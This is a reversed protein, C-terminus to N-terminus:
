DARTRRLLPEAAALSRDAIRLVRGAAGPTTNDILNGMVQLTINAIGQTGVSLRLGSRLIWPHGILFSFRRGTRLFADFRAGVERDYRAPATAPDDVFLDAALIGSELGYDIGEGNMPNVLGAADGIAVWGAGHRRQTSMPLRWARPKEVYDGLGWEDRVLTRYDDLLRNLNLKKFGKMTSLAGVGINVTGDGAPFMWGYGPVPTGHHDRLTLCAELYRDAHRPSPAYARIALGFPEEAVRDAGVLRSAAGPAGTALVVLDAAIREGGAEVGVVRDGELVPLAETSWRVEAGAEQAAEALRADLRRRPWVAGHAPFRDTGPWPLQRRTRNAIMRLGDIRHADELDIKLESLAAVARPTLGDGCVKDRGAPGKEFVTVRAGARAARMAAASGAPGAGIVVLDRREVGAM